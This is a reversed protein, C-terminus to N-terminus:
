FAFTACVSYSSLPPRNIWAERAASCAEVNEEMTFSWKGGTSAATSSSSATWLIKQLSTEATGFFSLLSTPPAPGTVHLRKGNMFDTGHRHQRRAIDQDGLPSILIADQRSTTRRFTTSGRVSSASASEISRSAGMDRLVFESRPLIAGTLDRSELLVVSCSTNALPASCMVSVPANGGKPQRHPRDALSQQTLDVPIRNAGGLALHRQRDLAGCLKRM